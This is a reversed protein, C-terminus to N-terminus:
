EGAKWDVVNMTMTVKDTKMTVKATGGVIKDSLWTKTTGAGGRKAEMKTEVWHCKYKAGKVEIEEDGEAVIEIKGGESDTGKKVKAPVTRAPLNVTRKEGKMDMETTAELVAKETTLEKLKMTTTSEIKTGASDVETKFKVWAGAKHGAWGKYEPNEVLEDQPGAGALIAAILALPLTKM